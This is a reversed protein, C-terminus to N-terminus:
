HGSHRATEGTEAQNAAAVTSGMSGGFNQVKSSRHGMQDPNDPHVSITVPFILSGPPM